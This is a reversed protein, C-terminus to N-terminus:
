FGMELLLLLRAVPKLSFYIIAQYCDSIGLGELCSPKKIDECTCACTYQHDM